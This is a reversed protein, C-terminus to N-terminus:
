RTEESTALLDLQGPLPSYDPVDPLADCDVCGYGAPCRITGDPGPRHGAKLLHSRLADASQWHEVWSDDEDYRYGCALTATFCPRPLQVLAPIPDDHKIHDAAAALAADKTDYHEGDAPDGTHHNLAWCAETGAAIGTM